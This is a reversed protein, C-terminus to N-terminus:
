NRRQTHSRRQGKPRPACARSLPVGIEPRRVAFARCIQFGPKGSQPRCPSDQGGSRLFAASRSDPVGSDRAARRNKPAPGCLRPLDSVRIARIAHPVGTRGHSTPRRPAPGAGASRCRRNGGGFGPEPTSKPPVKELNTSGHSGPARGGAGGSWWQAPNKREPVGSGAHRVCVPPAPERIHRSKAARGPSFPAGGAFRVVQDGLPGVFCPLIPARSQSEQITSAKEPDPVDFGRARQRNRPCCRRIYRM